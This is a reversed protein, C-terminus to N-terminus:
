RHSNFGRPIQIMRNTGWRAEKEERDEGDRERQLNQEVEKKGTWDCTEQQM